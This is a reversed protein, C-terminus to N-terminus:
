LESLTGQEAGCAYADANDELLIFDLLMNCVNDLRLKFINCKNLYLNLKNDQLAM